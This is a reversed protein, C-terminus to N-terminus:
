KKQYMDKICDAFMGRNYSGDWCYISDVIGREWSGPRRVGTSVSHAAQILLKKVGPAFDNKQKDFIEEESYYGQLHLGHALVELEAFTVEDLEIVLKRTNNTM